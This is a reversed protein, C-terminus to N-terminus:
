CKQERSPSSRPGSLSGTVQDGKRLDVQWARGDGGASTLVLEEGLTWLSLLGIGFEGQLGRTDQTKLRQKISDCVHTAVYRFDAEGDANRRVGEGEDKV